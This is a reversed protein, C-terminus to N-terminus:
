RSQSDLLYESKALVHIDYKRQLFYKIEISIYEFMKKNFINNVTELKVSIKFEQEFYNMQNVITIIYKRKFMIIAYICMCIHAHAHM